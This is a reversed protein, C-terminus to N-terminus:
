GNAFKNQGESISKIRSAAFRGAVLGLFVLNTLAEMTTFNGPIPRGVLCLTRHGGCEVIVSVPLIELITEKAM